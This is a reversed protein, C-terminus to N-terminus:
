KLVLCLDISINMFNLMIIIIIIIVCFHLIEYQRKIILFSVLHMNVGVALGVHYKANYLGIPFDHYM